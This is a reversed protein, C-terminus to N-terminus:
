NEVPEDDIEALGSQVLADLENDSLKEFRHTTEVREKPKGITRNLIDQSALLAKGEDPSLLATTALRAAAYAKTFEMIDEASSGGKLMQQLKPAILTQFEEFAALKDLNSVM